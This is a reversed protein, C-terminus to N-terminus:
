FSGVTKGVEEGEVWELSGFRSSSAVGSLTGNGFTLTRRLKMWFNSHKSISNLEVCSWRSMERCWANHQLNLYLSWSEAVQSSIFPCGAHSTRGSRTCEWSERRSLISPLTPHEAKLYITANQPFCYFCNPSKINLVWFDWLGLGWSWM